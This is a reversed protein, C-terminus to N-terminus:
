PCLLSSLNNGIDLHEIKNKDNKSKNEEHPFFAFSLVCLATNLAFMEKLLPFQWSAM